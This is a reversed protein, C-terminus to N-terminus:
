KMIRWLLPDLITDRISEREQHPARVGRKVQTVYLSNHDNLPIQFIRLDDITPSVNSQIVQELWEGTHKKHEVGGDMAKPLHEEERM